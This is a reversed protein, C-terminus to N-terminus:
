QEDPVDEVEVARSSTIVRVDSLTTLPEMTLVLFGGVSPIQVTWYIGRETRLRGGAPTSTVRRWLKREVDVEYVSGTETRIRKM